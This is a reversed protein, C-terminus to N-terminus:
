SETPSPIDEYEVNCIKEAEREALQQRLGEIHAEAREKTLMPEHIPDLIYGLGEVLLISDWSNLFSLLGSQNEDKAQAVYYTDNRRTVKKLRYEM